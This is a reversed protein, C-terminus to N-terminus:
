RWCPGRGSRGCSMVRLRISAATRAEADVAFVDDIRAVLQTAVRDDPSLKMAEFVKRRAHAWCAAHVLRDGGTREYASYGDTQLIGEFKGLFKKPGERGRGLQFDFVTSGAPQGYQWLYAQHNKGRGDHMQVPVPTEDAQIYCWRKTVRAPDGGVSSGTVRGSADGLRRDDSPQNCNRM